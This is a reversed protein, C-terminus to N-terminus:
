KSEDNDHERTAECGAGSRTQLVDPGAVRQGAFIACGFRRSTAATGIAAAIHDIGDTDEHLDM